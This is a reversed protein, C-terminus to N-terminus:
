TLYDVIKRYPDGDLGARLVQIRVRPEKVCVHHIPRNVTDKNKKDIILIKKIGSYEKDFGETEKKFNQLNYYLYPEYEILIKNFLICIFINVLDKSERQKNFIINFYSIYNNIEKLFDNLKTDYDGAKIIFTKFERDAWQEKNRVWM